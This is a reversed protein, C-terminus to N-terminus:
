NEVMKNPYRVISTDYKKSIYKFKQVEIVKPTAYKIAYCKYYFKKNTDLQIITVMVEVLDTTADRLIRNFVKNCAYKPCKAVFRAPAINKNTDIFSYYKKEM